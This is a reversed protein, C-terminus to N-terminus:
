PVASCFFRQSGPMADPSTIAPRAMVSGSPPVSRCLMFVRATARSERSGRPLPPYTRSPEFVKMVLPDM